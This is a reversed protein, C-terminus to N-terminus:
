KFWSVAVRITPKKKQNKKFTRARTRRYVPRSIYFCIGKFSRILYFFFMNFKHQRLTSLLIPFTKALYFNFVFLDIWKLDTFKTKYLNNIRSNTYEFRFLLLKIFQWSIGHLKKLFYFDKNSYFELSGSFYFGRKWFFSIMIKKKKKKLYQKKKYIAVKRTWLFFKLSFGLRWRNVSITTWKFGTYIYVKTKKFASTLKFSTKYFFFDKFSLRNFKKLYYIKKFEKKSYKSIYM